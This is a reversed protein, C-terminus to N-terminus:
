MSIGLIAVSSFFYIMLGVADLITAVLPGSAVAPDVKMRHLLLPFASGLFSAVMLTLAMAIGIALGLQISEQWLFMASLVLVLGCAVGIFAGIITERMAYRWVSRDDLEGTALGRIVIAVSQTAVNGATDMQVPIFFALAVIVALADSFRAIVQGSLMGGVLCILLWPLRRRARQLPSLEWEDDEDEATRLGALSYVDETAEESIIDAVDDYTIIGLLFNQDNVVPIALLNYRQLAEAAVSQDDEVRLKVLNTTAMAGLTLEPNALILERLSISGVLHKRSDHVYIYYITEATKSMEPLADLTSAVTMDHPLMLFDTSMLGGASDSPFSMLEKMERRDDPAMAQLITDAEKENLTTLYDAMEDTSMLVLMEQMMKVPMSRFLKAVERDPLEDLVAGKRDADLLQLFRMARDSPLEQLLEALEIDHLEDFIAVLAADDKNDFLLLIAEMDYNKGSQARPGQRLRRRELNTM